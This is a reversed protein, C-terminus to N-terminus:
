LDEQIIKKRLMDEILDEYNINSSSSIDRIVRGAIKGKELIYQVIHLMEGNLNPMYIKGITYTKNNFYLEEGYIMEYHERLLELNKWKDSLLDYYYCLEFANGTHSKRNREIKESIITYANNISAAEFDKGDIMFKCGGGSLTAKKTGRMDLYLPEFLQIRIFDADSLTEINRFKSAPVLEQISISKNKIALFLVEDQDFLKINNYEQLERLIDDDRLSSEYIKLEGVAGDIIVPLENGYLYNVKGNVIKVPINVFNDGECKV